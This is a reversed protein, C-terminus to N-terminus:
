PSLVRRPLLVRRLRATMQPPTLDVRVTGPPLGGPEVEMLLFSPGEHALAEGALSAVDELRSTRRTWGYGASAAVAALDVRDSITRQGGTSAHRNNDFCFHTFGRPGRVGVQALSGLGMLVNGDGDFVAVRREPQALVIGLAISPAVGMSGIMYFHTPRDGAAYLARSVHGNCAIVVADGAAEGVARSVAAIADERKV